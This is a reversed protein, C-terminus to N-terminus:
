APDTLCWQINIFRISVSTAILQNYSRLLMMIMHIFSHAFAGENSDKTVQCQAMANYVRSDQIRTDFESFGNGRPRGGWGVICVEFM